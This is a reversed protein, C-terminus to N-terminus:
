ELRYPQRDQYKKLRERYPEKAAAPAAAIAKEQWEVAQDFQGLEAHAAALAAMEAPGQALAHAKQAAALAKGGDRITAEPCGARLLAVATHYTSAYPEKGALQAAKEYDALAKAYEKKAQWTVGRLHWPVVYSPNLAIAKDYDALAKDYDKGALAVNGRDRYFVSETPVLRIAAEFDALARPYDKRRYYIWGRVHYAWDLAPDDRIVVNYDELARDYQGKGYALNARHYYALTAKPDLRIAENFDALAQDPENNALYAQGRAAYAHSDKSDKALRATFHAVAQSLLVADKKAIWGVQRRSEVRLRGGEVKRVVFQMDKALGATRPAVNEGDPAELRVGPRTLVVAMGEWSPEDARARAATLVPYFQTFVNDEAGKERHCDYCASKKAPRAKDKTKGPADSFSFYAWGDPFRDRDKVAASLGTFEKQFSGRLGPEKKEEGAATELVLVTGQPFAGTEQYARYAAPDIYVNKYELREPQKKGEEYRLGLSSGVFVWERYGEPRLLTDKGEFRAAPKAPAAGLLTAVILAPWPLAAVPTFSFSM